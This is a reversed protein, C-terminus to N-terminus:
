GDLGVDGLKAAWGDAEGVAAFFRDIQDDIGSAVVDGKGEDGAFVEVVFAVPRPETEVDEVGLAVIQEDAPQDLGVAALEPEDIALGLEDGGVDGAEVAALPGGRAEAIEFAAVERGALTDVVDVRRAMQHFNLVIAIAAREFFPNAAEFLCDPCDHLSISAVIWSWSFARWKPSTASRIKKPPEEPKVSM